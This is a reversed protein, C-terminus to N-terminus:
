VFRLNIEQLEVAPQTRYFANGAATSTLTQAENKVDLNYVCGVVFVDMDSVWGDSM